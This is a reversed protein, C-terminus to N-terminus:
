TAVSGSVCSAVGNDATSRQVYPSLPPADSSTVVSYKLCVHCVLNKFCTRFAENYKVYLVVNYSTSFVTLTLRFKNLVSDSESSDDKGTTKQLSFM